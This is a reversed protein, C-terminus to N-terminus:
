EKIVKVTNSVNNSTVKVFYAGSALNSMDVQGTNANPSITVVRQGVLNFIEINSIEQNYSINLINKTPNPYVKLASKDFSPSSLAQDEVTIQDLINARGYYNIGEFAIQYMESPSPLDLIVYTWAAINETYHAIEIWPSSVSVRYYVKLENQDGSWDEQAYYFTLKPVSLTSIDFFPSVLKTVPSAVGSQSVFRANLSGQYASTISGGNAGTTYTWNSAGEVQENTWCGRSASSNEFTEVFPFSTVAICATTFSKSIWIGFNEGNCAARVHLYYLTNPTLGSAEYFSDSIATGSAPPTASTTIAYEYGTAGNASMNDWSTDAETATINVVTLGTQDPCTPADEVTVDDIALYWGDAPADERAFAIYITSDIYDSLDVTYETYDSTIQTISLTLVLNTFDVIARGTTSVRVNLNDPEGNSYHRVWFKLRKATSGLDLQPTILYDNNSANYDTYLQASQGSRPIETGNLSWSDADANGNIVTWCVKSTSDTNFTEVFPFVTVAVCATTFSKSVWIGFSEGDCTTRVHLYYLTNPTLGSAEYFIDTTAIGSAPPTASTTIVYEYGTAGFGSMDDWSTDAETATINAVVLGTQDPCTPADEITVDDIALYWGDAPEDERAFAIYVSTDIYDSLDVVYETYTATIQTTSLALVLNTFDAIARGTTSVRVNLNDPEGNSYHRVWFKLRKATSGLELQPTILYDNNSTNYDTYLQASQGSRPIETGNLSWSDSDSNGNIVTWCAKSTSDTNFTEVFPFTTVAVCRTTFSKSTWLGFNEDDCTTRVHLYYLTNPTLGSAEYFADTIATGSAPPTASTTIAYEYGTAGFGSMNDWSTDAETATINSVVLGTQDPCGPIDEVTVDDILLYWGDAPEDERAFAVYVSTDAYDSLDVVYETYTTTIETTSLALLLNTFDAIARGTTSLRVNLNDPEGDSRHRVWFKLRKPTAGLDLQPTILYDNNSENYDTYLEASQGSRPIYESNLDWADGDSNGDIVTWCAKSTSDTNFTEVFPFTTVTVCGTTFSHSISWNSFDGSGCNARVFLYYTTQPDLDDFSTFLDVTPTGSGTPITNSTSLVYEYGEAIASASAEWSVEATYATVNASILGTPALCDALNATVVLLPRSVSAGGFFLPITTINCPDLEEDSYFYASGNFSLTSNLSIVNETYEGDASGACVEIIINSTGDWNFPTDLEFTVNGTASPTFDTPGYVLTAGTEFTTTLSTTATSKMSIKYGEQLGSEGIETVVWGIETIPGAVLGAASLESALFLYQSRNTKYYDQLPAPYGQNGNPTGDDVGIVVTGTQANIQWSMFFAFLCM